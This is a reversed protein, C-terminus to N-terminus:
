RRPRPRSHPQLRSFSHWGGGTPGDDDVDVASAHKLADDQAKLAAHTSGGARIVAHGAELATEAGASDRETANLCPWLMSGGAFTPLWDETLGTRDVIQRVHDPRSPDLILVKDVVRSPMMPKLLKEWFWRVPTPLNVVILAALQQPYVNQLQNQLESDMKMFALNFGKIGMGGADFMRFCKVLRGTKRTAQDLAFATWENLHLIAKRYTETDVSDMLQKM